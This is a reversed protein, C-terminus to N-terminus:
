AFCLQPAKQKQHHWPSPSAAAHSKNVSTFNPACRYPKVDSKSHTHTHTLFSFPCILHYARNMVTHKLEHTHSLVLPRRENHWLGNAESKRKVHWAQRCIAATKNAHSVQLRGSLRSAIIILLYRARPGQIYMELDSSSVPLFLYFHLWWGPIKWKDAHCLHSPTAEKMFLFDHICLLELWQAMESTPRDQKRLPFNM